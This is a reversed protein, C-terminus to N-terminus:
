MLSFTIVHSVNDYGMFLLMHVITYHIFHIFNKSKQFSKLGSEYSSRCINTLEQIESDKIEVIDGNLNYM